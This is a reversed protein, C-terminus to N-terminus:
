IEQTYFMGSCKQNTFYHSPAGRGGPKMDIRKAGKARPIVLFSSLSIDDLVTAKITVMTPKSTAKNKARASIIPMPLGARNPDLCIPPVTTPATTKM